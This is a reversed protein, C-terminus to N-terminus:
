VLVSESQVGPFRLAFAVADESERFIFGYSWRTIGVRTWGGPAANEQVWPTIVLRIHDTVSCDQPWGVSEFHPYLYVRTM